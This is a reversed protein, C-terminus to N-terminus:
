GNGLRDTSATKRGRLETSIGALPNGEAALGYANTRAPNAALPKIYMDITDDRLMDPFTFTDGGLHGPARCEDKNVLIAQFSNGFTGAKADRIVSQVPEPPCDIESDGNTLLMTRVRAGHNALILQAIACGSDNAVLDVQDIGLKDLLAIIM